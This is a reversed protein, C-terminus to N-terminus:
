GVHKKKEEKSEKMGGLVLVQFPSQIRDSQGHPCKIGESFGAKQTHMDKNRNINKKGQKENFANSKLLFYTYFYQYRTYNFFNCQSTNNIRLFCAHVICILYILIILQFSIHPVQQRQGAVMSQLKMMIYLIIEWKISSGCSLLGIQHGMQIMMTMLITFVTCFNQDPLVM